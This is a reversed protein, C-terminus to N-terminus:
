ISEKPICRGIRLDKRLQDFSNHIKDPQNFSLMSTVVDLDM